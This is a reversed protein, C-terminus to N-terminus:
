TNRDPQVMHWGLQWEYQFYGMGPVFLSANSINLFPQGWEPGLLVPLAQEHIAHSLFRLTDAEWKNYAACIMNWTEPRVFADGDDAFTDAVTALYFAYLMSLYFCDTDLYEDRRSMARMKPASPPLTNVQLHPGPTTIFGHAQLAVMFGHSLHDAHRDDHPLLQQPASAMVFVRDKNAQAMHDWVLLLFHGTLQVPVVIRRLPAVSTSQAAHSFAESQVLADMYAKMNTTTHVYHVLPTATAMIVSGPPKFSPGLGKDYYTQVGKTLVHLEINPSVHRFLNSQLMFAFTSYTSYPGHSGAEDFLTPYDHGGSSLVNLYDFGKIHTGTRDYVVRRDLHSIPNGLVHGSNAIWRRMVMREARELEEFHKAHEPHYMSAPIPLRPDNAYTNVMHDIAGRRLYAGDSKRVYEPWNTRPFKPFEASARVTAALGLEAELASERRADREAVSEM